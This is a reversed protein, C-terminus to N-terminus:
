WGGDHLWLVRVTVPFGLSYNYRLDGFYRTAVTEGDEMASATPQWRRAVMEGDEKTSAVLHWQRAVTEGDEIASARPQWRREVM